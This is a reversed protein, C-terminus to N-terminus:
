QMQSINCQEEKGIGGFNKAKNAELCIEDFSPFHADWELLTSFHGGNKCLYSYLNWVENCVPKDHTDLIHTDFETHGAVHVQIVRSIPINRIYEMPDFEHNKSSVFINNVDLLMQIDAREVISSYFEWEPMEDMKYTLYSSVNELAFPIELFDQVIRAREGVFRAVNQTYPLPLLEHYHTGGRRGWSLHDSLWPTKTKRALAKLRKLYDFDLPDASGIALSVGHQVIPYHELIQDLNILNPGNEVMFNESIIEFWDVKPLTKLVTPIHEMRLGIGIGLNGSYKM